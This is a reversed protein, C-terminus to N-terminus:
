EVVEFNRSWENGQMVVVFLLADGLQDLAGAIALGNGDDRVGAGGAEGVGTVAEEFGATILFDFERDQRARGCDCCRKNGGSKWGVWKGEVAEKVDFFSLPTFLKLSSEFAGFGGHEELGGVAQGGSEFYEVVQSRFVGDTYSALEGLCEFGQVM